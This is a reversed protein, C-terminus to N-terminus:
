SHNCGAVMASKKLCHGNANGDPQLQIKDENLSWTRSGGAESSCLSRASSSWAGGGRREAGHTGLSLVHRAIAADGAGSSLAEGRRAAEHAM